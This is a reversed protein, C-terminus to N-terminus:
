AVSRDDAPSEEAVPVCHLAFYFTAGGGATAEAWVTGRHRRIVRQVTALGIGTGAFGEGVHLREFPHFLKNAYAMDFGIGNDRVFFVQRGYVTESGFAIEPHECQGTFKWANSLLNELVVRLLTPDGTTTLGPEIHVDVTREPEADRLSRVIESALASLDVQTFQLESRFVQSLKLLGDILNAMRVTAERIRALHAFGEPGLAGHCDEELAHSFGNIARLPGRLDHSVSYSFSQLEQNAAELESTRERVRAELEAQARCNADHAARRQQEQETVDM